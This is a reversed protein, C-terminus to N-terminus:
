LCSSYQYFGRWSVLVVTAVIMVSFIPLCLVSQMASSTGCQFVAFAPSSLNIDDGQQYRTWRVLGEDVIEHRSSAGILDSNDISMFRIHPFMRNTELAVVHM